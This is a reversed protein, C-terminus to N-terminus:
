ERTKLSDRAGARLDKCFVRKEKKTSRRRKEEASGNNKMAVAIMKRKAGTKGYKEGWSKKKEMKPCKKPGFTRQSAPIMPNKAPTGPMGM